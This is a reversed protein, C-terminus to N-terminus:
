NRKTLLQKSLEIYAGVACSLLFVIICILWGYHLYQPPLDSQFGGFLEGAANGLVFGAFTVYPFKLWGFMAALTSIVAAVWLFHRGTWGPTYIPFVGRVDFIYRCILYAALYLLAIIYVHRARKQLSSKM